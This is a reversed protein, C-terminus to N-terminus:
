ARPAQRSASPECPRDPSAGDALGLQTLTPWVQAILRRAGERASPNPDWGIVDFGRSLLYAAWGAGIVGTGICAVCRIQSISEAM